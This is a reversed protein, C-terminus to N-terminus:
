TFNNRYFPYIFTLLSFNMLSKMEMQSNHPKFNMTLIYVPKIKKRKTFNAHYTTLRHRPIGGRLM